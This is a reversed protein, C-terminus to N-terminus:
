AAFVKDNHWALIDRDLQNEEQEPVTIPHGELLYYNMGNNYRKRILPSVRVRLDSSRVFFGGGCIKGGEKKHLKFLFMENPQLAKFADGGPHWFNVEPANAERLQNFWGGDTIGVYIKM